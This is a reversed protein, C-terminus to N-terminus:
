EDKSNEEKIQTLGLINARTKNQKEKTTTKAMTATKSYYRYWHYYTQLSLDLSYNKLFFEKVYKMSGSMKLMEDISSHLTKLLYKAKTKRQRDNSQFEIYMEIARKEVQSLEM